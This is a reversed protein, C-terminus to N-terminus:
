NIDLVTHLKKSISQLVSFTKSWIDSMINEKRIKKNTLRKERRIPDRNFGLSLDDTEKVSSILNHMLFAIYAQSFDELHKGSSATLM